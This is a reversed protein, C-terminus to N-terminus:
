QTAGRTILTAEGLRLNKRVEGAPWVTPPLLREAPAQNLTLKIEKLNQKQRSVFWATAKGSWLSSDKAPVVQFRVVHKGGTIAVKYWQSKGEQRETSVKADQGDVQAIVKVSVKREIYNDQALLVAVMGDISNEGVTLQVEFNNKENMAAVVPRGEVLEKVKTRKLEALLKQLVNSTESSSSLVAPNLIRADKSPSYLSLKWTNGSQAVVDYVVDALLPESADSIPFLEYVAM